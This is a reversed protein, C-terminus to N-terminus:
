SAVGGHTESASVTATVDSATLDLDTLLDLQGAADSTSLAAYNVGEALATHHADAVLRAYDIGTAAPQEPPTEPRAKVHSHRGIRHPIATGAPVGRVRVQLTTLDFPDFVLEVRHGVLLPDVQYTNGQLSVLATKSVTRHAEWLFAEALAAPTPLPFPGGAHWRQLPPAGTESHERRHYVTEVWATFLRNLESLDTVRHRGQDAGDSTTAEGTIEVLFQERVTRTPEASRRPAWHGQTLDRCAPPSASIPPRRRLHDRHPAHRTPPPRV